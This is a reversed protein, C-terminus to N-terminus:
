PWVLSDCLSVFSSQSSCLMRANSRRCVCMGPCFQPARRSVLRDPTPVWRRWIGSTSSRSASCSTKRSSTPTSLKVSWTYTTFELCSRVCVVHALCGVAAELLVWYSTKGVCCFDCVCVCVCVHVQKTIQKVADIPIGRYNYKVISRLLNSGLVEFVMVMDSIAVSTLSVM